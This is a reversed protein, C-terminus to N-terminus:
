VNESENVCMCLSSSNDSASAFICSCERLCTRQMVCAYVSQRHSFFKMMFSMFLLSDFLSRYFKVAAVMAAGSSGLAAVALM